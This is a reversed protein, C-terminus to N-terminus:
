GARTAAPQRPAPGAESPAPPAGAPQVAGQQAAAPQDASPQGSGGPGKAKDAAKKALFLQAEDVLQGLKAWVGEAPDETECEALIARIPDLKSGHATESLQRTALEAEERQGEAIQGEVDKREEELEELEKQEKAIHERKRDIREVVKDRRGVLGKIKQQVKSLHQNTALCAWQAKRADGIKTEVDQKESKWYVSDPRERLAARASSLKANLFALQEDVQEKTPEAATDKNKDEGEDVAGTGTKTALQKKLDDVEKKLEAVQGQGRPPGDLWRSRSPPAQGAPAPRGQRDRQCARCRERWGFNRKAGCQATAKCDWPFKCGAHGGGQM